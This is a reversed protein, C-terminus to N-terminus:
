EKLMIRINYHLPIPIKDTKKINSQMLGSKCTLKLPRDSKVIECQYSSIGTLYRPKYDRALNFYLKDDIRFRNENNGSLALLLADSIDKEPLSVQLEVTSFEYDCINKGFAKDWKLPLALRFSDKGFSSVTATYTSYSSWGLSLEYCEKNMKTSEFITKLTVMLGTDINGAVIIDESYKKGKVDVKSQYISTPKVGLSCGNMLFIVFTCFIIYKYKM